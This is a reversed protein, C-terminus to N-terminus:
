GVDRSAMASVCESVESIVGPVLRFRGLPKRTRKSSLAAIVFPIRSIQSCRNDILPLSLWLAPM